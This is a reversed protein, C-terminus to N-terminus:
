LMFLLNLFITLGLSLVASLVLWFLCGRGSCGSGGGFVVIGSEEPLRGGIRRGSENGAGGNGAM